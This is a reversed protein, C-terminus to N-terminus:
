QWLRKKPQFVTVTGLFFIKRIKNGHIYSLFQFKKGYRFVTSYIFSVAINEANKSFNYKLTAAILFIKLYM